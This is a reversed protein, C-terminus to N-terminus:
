VGGAGERPSLGEDQCFLVKILIDCFLRARLKKRNRLRSSDRLPMSPDRLPVTNVFLMHKQLSLLLRHEQLSALLTHKQLPMM